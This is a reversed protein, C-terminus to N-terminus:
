RVRLRCGTYITSNPRIGNLRCHPQMSVGYRRAISSLTDGSRLPNHKIARLENLCVVLDKPFVLADTLFEYNQWDNLINAPISLLSDNINCGHEYVLESESESCELM